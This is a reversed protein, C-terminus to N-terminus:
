YNLKFLHSFYSQKVSQTGRGHQQAWLDLSTHSSIGFLFLCSLRWRGDVELCEVQITLHVVQHPTTVVVLSNKHVGWVACDISRSVSSGVPLAHLRKKMFLSGIHSVLVLIYPVSEFWKLLFSTKGKRQCIPITWLIIWLGVSSWSITKM